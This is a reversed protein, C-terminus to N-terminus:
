FSPAYPLGSIPDIPIGNESVKFTAEKKTNGGKRPTRSLPAGPAPVTKQAEEMRFDSLGPYDLALVGGTGRRMWVDRQVASYNMKAESLALRVWQRREDDPIGAETAREETMTELGIQWRLADTFATSGRAGASGVLGNLAASRSSHHALMVASDTMRAIEELTQVLRTMHGSDNEDASFFRRIPEIITLRAGQAKEAIADMWGVVQRGKADLLDPTYGAMPVVDLADLTDEPMGYAELRELLTEEDEEGAFYVVKGQTQSPWVGGAIPEGRAIGIATALLLFSKGTGGPSAICGIGRRKLGPLVWDVPPRPQYLKSRDLSPPLLIVPADPHNPSDAAPRLGDRKLAM